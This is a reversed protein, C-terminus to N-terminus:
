DNDCRRGLDDLRQEIVAVRGNRTAAHATHAELKEGLEAVRRRLHTVGIEIGKLTAEVAGVKWAAAAVGSLLGVLVGGLGIIVTM